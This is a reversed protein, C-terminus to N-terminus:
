LQKIKGAFATLISDLMIFRTLFYLRSYKLHAHEFSIPKGDMRDYSIREPCSLPQKNLSCYYLKTSLNNAISM